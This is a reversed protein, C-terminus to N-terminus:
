LVSLTAMTLVRGRPELLLDHRFRIDAQVSPVSCPSSARVHRFGVGVKPNRKEAAAVQKSMAEICGERTPFAQLVDWPSSDNRLWLAWACDADATAASSLLSLALLLRARRPLRM